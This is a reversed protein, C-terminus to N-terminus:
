ATCFRFRTKPGRRDVVISARRATEVPDISRDTPRENEIATRRRPEARNPPGARPEARGISRDIPGFFLTEIQM